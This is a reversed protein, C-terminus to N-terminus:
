LSEECKKGLFIAICTGVQAMNKVHQLIPLHSNTNPSGSKEPIFSGNLIFHEFHLELENQIQQWYLMMEDSSSTAMKLRSKTTLM